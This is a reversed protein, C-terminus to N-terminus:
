WDDSEWYWVFGILIGKTERLSRRLNVVVIYKMGGHM